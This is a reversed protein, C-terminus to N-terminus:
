QNVLVVGLAGLGLCLVILAFFAVAEKVNVRARLLGLPQFGTEMPLGRRKFSRAILVNAGIIWLLCAGGGIFFGLLKTM